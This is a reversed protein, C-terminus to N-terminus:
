RSQCSNRRLYTLRVLLEALQTILDTNYLIRSLSDKLVQIGNLVYRVKNLVKLTEM